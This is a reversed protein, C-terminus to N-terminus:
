RLFSCIGERLKGGNPGGIFGASRIAQQFVATLEQELEVHLTVLDLFPIGQSSNM